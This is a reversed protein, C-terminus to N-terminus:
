SPDQQLAHIIDTIFNVKLLSEAYEESADSDAVIGGGGWYYLQDADCVLTRIPLNTDLNGHYSYYGIAGCYVHRKVPELEGIIEMARRKPAGTISGGPFCNRLLDMASIDPKLEGSISSVLHHVNEYTNLEFLKDVKISGTIASKGLDNRLLDVIMLNEAQDKESHRLEDALRQDETPDSHRGRTGKIPQTLIKRDEVRVLREPSFSLIDAHPTRLYASFPARQRQRLRAYLGLPDGEYTASFRQTFNVQYCDGAQIYAEISAFAANYQPESLNSNIQSTVKFPLSISPTLPAVNQLRRRLIELSDIDVDPVAVLYAQRQQRDVIVFAPYIGVLMDPLNLDSSAAVALQQQAHTLEYGFFGVAGGQFPLNLPCPEVHRTNQIVQEVAAFADLPTPQEDIYVQGERSEIVHRPNAGLIDYRQQTAQREKRRSDNQRPDTVKPDEPLVHAELLVHSELLFPLHEDELCRFWDFADAQYPLNEITWPM